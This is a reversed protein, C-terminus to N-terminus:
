RDRCHLVYTQIHSFQSCPPESISREGAEVVYRTLTSANSNSAHHSASRDETPRSLTPPLDPHTPIPHITARQDIKRRDRCHLGYTQIHSFQICARKSISRESTEVICSTLRSTNSNSVHDSASRDKAPRSLTARLHPHTLIPHM